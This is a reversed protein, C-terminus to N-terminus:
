KKIPPFVIKQGPELVMVNDLHNAEAVQVYYASDGYIRYCMLPLNDGAKATRVHTLDPSNKQKLSERMESNIYQSFAVKVKARLPKGNPDFLTYDVSMSKLQGKFILDSSGGWEIKVYNTSHIKGNYLLVYKKLLEIEDTVDGTGPIAGTGDFILELDLTEPPPDIIKVDVIEGRALKEVDNKDAKLPIFSRKYGEPNIKVELPQSMGSAAQTFNDDEYAYIKLKNEPM